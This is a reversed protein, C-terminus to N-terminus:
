VLWGVLRDIWDLGVGDSGILATWDIQDLGIWDLGIWDLGVLRGVLWDLGVCHLRM